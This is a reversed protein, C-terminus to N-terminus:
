PVAPTGTEILSMLFAVWDAVANQNRTAVFHGDFGSPMYQFVAGFRPQADGGTLNPGTIPRSIDTLSLDDILPLASHLGTAGAMRKLTSPPSFTDGPGYSMWVHKSAVGDPRKILEPAYNIADTTDFYTQFLTMVPHGGDFDPDILFQLGAQADVPSTKDLLSSTLFAGAGSFIAAPAADSTALAPVGVNSGQSHGFYYRNGGDLVIDGVGPVNITGIEHFRLLAVVDVAGQLHNDRAAVPNIVNFMLNDSDRTSAGKRAGHVVGDWGITVTPSSATALEGSIGNTIVSRMSGGTGHGFVVYPWGGGPQTANKPVTMTFCVMEDRVKQPMGGAFEIAGGNEPLEYPADGAQYIPVRIRGHIEHFDNDVSGCERQDGDACPSSNTGDCLTLDELVPAPEAAAAASLATMRGTTDMVTFVALGAITNAGVGEDVLYQRFPDYKDWANALDPDSPRTDGLMVQLDDDQVPTEGDESRLGTTVYVAYTHGPLLPSNTNARVNLRNQCNYLTRGTTYAWSMGRGNGFEPAGVTVDVYKITDGSTTGFDLRKAFRMTVVAVSSFGDFDAVLADVYRDVLDVGLLSPGPRPFDDMNLVGAASVRADNPFPMRFFDDPASGTRPVEFFVRFPGEDPACEVGTFPPFADQPTRCVGDAACALGALCDTQADCSQGLDANGGAACTGGFGFLECALGRECEADTACPDGEGGDGAPACVGAPSMPMPNPACYLEAGCDRDAWCAGGLGVTGELQCTGGACVFNAACGANSTCETGLGGDPGDPVDDGSEFLACGSGFVLAFLVPTVFRM